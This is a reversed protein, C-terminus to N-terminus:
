RAGLDQVTMLWTDQVFQEALIVEGIRRDPWLQGAVLPAAQTALAKIPTLVEVTLGEPKNRRWAGAVRAQDTLGEIGGKMSM